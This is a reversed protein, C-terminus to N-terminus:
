ELARTIIKKLHSNNKNTTRVAVRVAYHYYRKNKAIAKSLNFNFGRTRAVIELYLRISRGNGDQFPHIWALRDHAFVLANILKAKDNKVQALYKTAFDQCFIRMQEPVDDPHMTPFNRASIVIEEKRYTGGWEYISGFLEQHCKLFVSEGLTASKKTLYEAILVKSKIASYIFEIKELEDEFAAYVKNTTAPKRHVNKNNSVIFFLDKDYPALTTNIPCNAFTSELFLWRKRNEIKSGVVTACMVPLAQAFLLYVVSDGVQIEERPFRYCPEKTVKACKLSTVPFVVKSGSILQSRNKNWYFHTGGFAIPDTKIHVIKDTVADIDDANNNKLHKMFYKMRNM